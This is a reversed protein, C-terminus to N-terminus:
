DGQKFKTWKRLVPTTMAITICPLKIPTVNHADEPKKVTITGPRVLREGSPYLKECYSGLLCISVFGRPHSHYSDGDGRIFSHIRLHFGLIGVITFQTMVPNGDENRVTKKQLLVIVERWTFHKWWALLFQIM